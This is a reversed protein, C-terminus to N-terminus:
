DTLRKLIIKVLKDVTVKYDKSYEKRIRNAIIACATIAEHGLLKSLGFLASTEMEFNTVRHQKYHFATLKENLGDIAMDLRLRRGQPGYFGCATATIGSHMGDKLTNFLTTSGKILYPSNLPAKWNTQAIFAKLIDQEESFDHKYFHLLGDMGLGYESLVFSDVNIDEQLAGSTGIRILKLKTKEKKEIRNKLDINVLADLENIVIDINDTGIGTSVVSVKKNNYMGTHTAFERNQIKYDIHDFNKSVMEVRGPDGVLLITDSIQHPLLHLHFISGDPNLILESDPIKNM